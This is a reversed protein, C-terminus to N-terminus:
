YVTYWVGTMAVSTVMAITCDLRIHSQVCVYATNEGTYKFCKFKPGETLLERQDQPCHFKIAKIHM